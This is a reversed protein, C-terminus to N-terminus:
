KRSSPLSSLLSEGGWGCALSLEQLNGTPALLHGVGQASPKVLLVDVDYLAQQRDGYVVGDEGREVKERLKLLIARVAADIDMANGRFLYEDPGFAALAFRL